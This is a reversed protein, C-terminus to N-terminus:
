CGSAWVSCAKRVREFSSENEMFISGSLTIMENGCQRAGELSGLTSFRSQSRGVHLARFGADVPLGVARGREVIEERRAHNLAVLGMRYYGPEGDPVTIPRFDPSCALIDLLQRARLATAHVTKSLNELQPELAALQLNSLTSLRTGRMSQLRARQAVLPDSTLLAGGRGCSIPKGGGFSIVGARGWTGLPKGRVSAGPCQCCDEVLAINREQCMDAITAIDAMGGHLHSVVVASVPGANLAAKLAHPDMQGTAPDVDVLHPHAKLAHVTLFNGPYDYAALVVNSGPMVGTAALAWELALTGSGAVLAHPSAFQVALTREFRDLREHDYQAWSGDLLCAQVALVVSEPAPNPQTM